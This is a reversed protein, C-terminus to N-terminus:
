QWFSRQRVQQALTELGEPDFLLQQVLEFIIERLEPHSGSKPSKVVSFGHKGYYVNVEAWLHQYTFVFKRGYNQDPMDKLRLGLAEAAQVIPGSIEEIEVPLTIQRRRVRKEPRLTQRIQAWVEGEPERKKTTEPSPLERAPLEQSPPLVSPPPPATDPRVPPPPLEEDEWPLPEIKPYPAHNGTTLYSRPHLRLPERRHRAGPDHSLFSVRSIDHTRLDICDLLEYQRAFQRAFAQYADSFLKSNTIPEDLRFLLKLGQGSPSVYMLWIRPDQWLQEQLREFQAQSEYCHDLDLMWGYAAQVHDTRRIGGRFAAAIVFPLYKKRAQYSGKDTHALRRLMAVQAALGESGRRLRELVAAWEIPRLLPDPATFGAAWFLEHKM